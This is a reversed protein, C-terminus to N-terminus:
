CGRCIGKLRAAVRDNEIRLLDAPDVFAGETKQGTAPRAPGKDGQVSAVGRDFCALRDRDSKIGRCPENAASAPAIVPVILGIAMMAAACLLGAAKKPIRVSISAFLKRLRAPQSTHMLRKRNPTRDQMSAPHGHASIRPIAVAIKCAFPRPPPV